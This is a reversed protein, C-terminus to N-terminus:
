SWALGDESVTYCNLLTGDEYFTVRVPHTGDTYALPVNSRVDEGVAFYVSTLGSMVTSFSDSHKLEITYGNEADGNVASVEGACPAYVSCAATFSMVGTDSVALEVDTYENVVPSLTFDEYTRTDATATESGNWLDRVFTNIASNTVFINTLFIVACLACVAIFEGLLLKNELFRPQPKEQAPEPPLDPPAGYDVVNEEQAVRPQEGEAEAVKENVSGLAREKLDEAEGRRKKGRKKTVNLTNVPIELMEAYDISGNM